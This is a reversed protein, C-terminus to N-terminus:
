NDILSLLNVGVKQSATLLNGKTPTLNPNHLRQKINKLTGSTFNDFATVHIDQTTINDILHSGISGVGGTVQVSECDKTKM